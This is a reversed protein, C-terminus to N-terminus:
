DEDEVDDNLTDEDPVEATFFDEPKVQAHIPQAGSFLVTASLALTSFFLKSM